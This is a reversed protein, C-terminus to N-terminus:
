YKVLHCVRFDQTFTDQKKGTDIEKGRTEITSGRLLIGLYKTSSIRYLHWMKPFIVIYLTVFAGEWGEKRQEKSTIREEM